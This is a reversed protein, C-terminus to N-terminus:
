VHAGPCSEREVVYMGGGGGEQGDEYATFEPEEKPACSESQPPPDYVCSLTYMCADRLVDHAHSSPRALLHQRM